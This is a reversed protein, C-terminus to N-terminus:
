LEHLKLAIVKWSYCAKKNDFDLIKTYQVTKGALDPSILGQPVFAGDVFGFGKVNLSLSGVGFGVDELEVSASLKASVVDGDESISVEVFDGLAPIRSKSFMSKRVSKSKEKNFYIDFGKGSTHASKIVGIKLIVKGYL